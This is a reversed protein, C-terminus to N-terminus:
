LINRSKIDLYRQLVEISINEPPTDLVLAGREALGAVLRERRALIGAAVGQRYLDHTTEPATDAVQALDTDSLAAVLPLHRQRLAATYRLLGESAREDILDTFVVVLARRKLRASIVQLALHFRPQELRPELDYTAEMIRSFQGAANSPPQFRVVDQGVAMVGVRDGLELGAYAILLAAEVSYDLKTKERIRATMMRGADLVIFVTQSREMRNRRVILKGKRATTSWHILRSDDGVSYEKLSDFETGVGPRRLLRLIGGSDPKRVTFYRDRMLALGPYFKVIGTAESTGRKWVLGLRGQIWFHIDGFEGTGRKPPILRYSLRTGPGTPVVSNIPFPDALCRDPVDDKVIANVTQRSRNFVEIVIENPHGAALPYLLPREMVIRSPSPDMLYDVAVALLLLGDLALPLAITEPLFRYAPLLLASAGAFLVFFRTSLFFPLPRIRNSGKRSSNKLHHPAAPM